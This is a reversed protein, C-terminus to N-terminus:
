YYIYDNYQLAKGTQNSGFNIKDITDSKKLATKFADYSQKERISIPINNWINAARYKFSRKYEVYRFSPAKLKLTNRTVRVSASKSILDQLLPSTLNNYIKFAKCALSRKYYHIIPKWRVMQLIYADPTSKKLRHIFRAARIHIKEIKMMLSPSCNGWVSIGYLISPLVGQFYISSLVSKPMDRM